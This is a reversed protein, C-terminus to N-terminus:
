GTGDAEATKVSSGLRCPYVYRVNAPPFQTINITVSHSSPAHHLEYGFLTGFGTAADRVKVPEGTSLWHPMVGPAIFIQPDQDEAVEFFLIDRMLLIFEAAAWGHPIDGM